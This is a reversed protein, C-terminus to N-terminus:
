KQGDLKLVYDLERELWGYVDDKEKPEWGLSRIRDGKSMSNKSWVARAWVEGTIRTFSGNSHAFGGVM